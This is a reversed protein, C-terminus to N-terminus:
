VNKYEELIISKSQSKSSSKSKTTNKDNCKFSYTKGRLAIFEDIWIDKPTEIRLKGVVKETTNSFLEHNTDLDSFDFLDELNKWDHIINQTGISLVFSDCDMYHLQSFEQGFFPQFKVYYKGYM